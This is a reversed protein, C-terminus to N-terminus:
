REVCRPCSVLPGGKPYMHPRVDLMRGSDSLRADLQPAADGFSMTDRVGSWKEPAVPPAFRRAEATCAGYPIGLFESVGRYRIRRVRGNTTDVEVFSGPM